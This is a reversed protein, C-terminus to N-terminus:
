PQLGAIAKLKANAQRLAHLAALYADALAGNTNGHLKPEPVQETLPAPVPVM